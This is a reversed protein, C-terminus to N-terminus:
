MEWAGIRDFSGDDNFEIVIKSGPVGTIGKKGSEFVILKDPVNVTSEVGSLTFIEKFTEFHNLSM